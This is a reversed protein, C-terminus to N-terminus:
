LRRTSAAVDAALSHVEFACGNTNEIGVRWYRANLGRGPTIRSNRPQGAARPAMSYTYPGYGQGYTEVTASLTGDAHYGFWLDTVRKKPESPKPMGDQGYGGFDTYGFQVRADILETGDLDGGLVHLGDPGAAFVKGGVTAMSTFAWNDYWSVAGTDTNMVWAVLGPRKMLIVEDAVATSQLLAQSDVRATLGDDALAGDALDAASRTTPLADEGALAVDTVADEGGAFVDDEAVATATVDFFALSSAEDGALAGDAVDRTSVTQPTTEDAALATDSVDADGDLSVIEDALAVGELDQTSGLLLTDSAWALVETMQLSATGGSFEMWVTAGDAVDVSLAAVARFAPLMIGAAPPVGGRFAPLVVNWQASVDSARAQLPEFEIAVMSSHELAQATMPQMTIDVVNSQPWQDAQATMPEFAIDVSCFATESAMVAMPVFSIVVSALPDSVAGMQMPEFAIDCVGQVDTLAILAMPEFAIDVRSHRPRLGNSMSASDVRDGPMLLAADLFLPGFIKAKTAASGELLFNDTTSLEAPGTGFYPRGYERGIYFATGSTYPAWETLHAGGAFIRFRGSEFLFGYSPELPATRNDAASLGVSAGTTGVPVLFRFYGSGELPELSHAGATWQSASM